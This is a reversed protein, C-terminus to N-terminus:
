NCVLAPYNEHKMIIPLSVQKNRAEIVSGYEPFRMGSKNNTTDRRALAEPAPSPTQQALVSVPLSDFVWNLAPVSTSLGTNNALRDATSWGIWIGVLYDGNTGIVWADIGGPGTGSTNNSLL